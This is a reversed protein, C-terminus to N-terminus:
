EDTCEELSPFNIENDKVIFADPYEEAIKHLFCQADMRTRFDGVCVKFNPEQFTLYAEATEYKDQFGTMITEARSKSNSGSDFFIQVRFGSISGRNENFAIHKAVLTNIRSDQVLVEVKGTKQANLANFSILFLFVPFYNKLSSVLNNKLPTPMM